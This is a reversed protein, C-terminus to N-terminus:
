YFIQQYRKNKIKVALRKYGIPNVSYIQGIAFPIKDKFLNSVIVKKNYKGPSHIYYAIEKVPSSLLIGMHTPVLGNRSFFILDGKGAFEEHILIGFFDFFENCHRIEESLPFGIKRLLFVIFGSCDFGNEDQGNEAGLYPSSPFGFYKLAEEAFRERM